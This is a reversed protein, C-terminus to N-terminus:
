LPGAWLRINRRGARATARGGGGRTDGADGTRDADIDIDIDVHEDDPEAWEYLCHSASGVLWARRRLREALELWAESGAGPCELLAEGEHLSARLAERFREIELAAATHARRWERHQPSEPLQPAGATRQTRELRTRGSATLSWVPVGHRRSGAVDGAAVLRALAARASRAGPSRPALALHELMQRTSVAGDASQTHAAARRLAALVRSGDAAGGDAKAHGRRQEDSM